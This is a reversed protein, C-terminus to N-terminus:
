RAATFPGRRTLYAFNDPDMISAVRSETQDGFHSTPCNAAFWEWAAQRDPKDLLSSPGIAFVKWDEGPVRTELRLGWANSEETDFVVHANDFDVIQAKIRSQLRARRTMNTNHNQELVDRM